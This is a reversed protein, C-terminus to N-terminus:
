KSLEKKVADQIMKELLGGQGLGKEMHAKVQKEIYKGAMDVEVNVSDGVEKRPIVIKEQTYAVLMVAFWQEVDDVATVTLSAGDLTIYGKEVIYTLM